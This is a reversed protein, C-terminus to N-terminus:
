LDFLYSHQKETPEPSHYGTDNGGEGTNSACPNNFAGPHGNKLTLLLPQGKVEEEGDVEEETKWWGEVKGIGGMCPKLVGVMLPATGSHM